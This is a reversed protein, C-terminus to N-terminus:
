NNRDFLQGIRQKFNKFTYAEVTGHLEYETNLLEMVDQERLHSIHDVSLSNPDREAREKMLHKNIVILKKQLLMARAQINSSHTFDPYHCYVADCMEILANLHEEAPIYELIKVLNPENASHVADLQQSSLLDERLKGAIVFIFENNISSRAFEIFETIGKYQNLSGTLLISKRGRIREKLKIIPKWDYKCNLTNPIDPLWNVPIPAIESGLSGKIGEDLVFLGKCNTGQYLQNRTAKGNELVPYKQPLRLHRPHFFIGSWPRHVIQRVFCPLYRNVYTNNYYHDIYSDLWALFVLDAKQHTQREIKKVVGFTIYWLRVKTLLQNYRGIFFNVKKIPEDFPFISLYDQKKKAYRDVLEKVRDPNQTLISVSCGNKTFARALLVLYTEHHGGTLPDILYIHRRDM